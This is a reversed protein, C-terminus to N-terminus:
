SARVALLTLSIIWDKGLGVVGREGGSLIKSRRQFLFKRVSIYLFICVNAKLTSSSHQSVLCFCIQHFIKFASLNKRHQPLMNNEINLNTFHTLNEWRFQITFHTIKKALQQQNQFKRSSFFIIDVPVHPRIHFFNYSWFLVKLVLIGFILNQIM